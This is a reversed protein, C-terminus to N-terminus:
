VPLEILKFGSVDAGEYLWWCVHQDKTNQPGGASYVYGAALKKNPNPFKMIQEVIDRKLFSSVGYYHPDKTIDRPMGRPTKPRKGLEFYSKFDELTVERNDDIQREVARYTYLDGYEFQTTDPFEIEDNLLKDRLVVPFKFCLENDVQM